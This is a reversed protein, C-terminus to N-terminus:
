PQKEGQTSGILILYLVAEQCGDLRLLDNLMDDYFGGIPVGGLGEAHTALLLNQAIHGAELLVFRYAREGYKFSTRQMVASLLICVSAQSVPIEGSTAKILPETFDQVALQELSHHLTNYSYLGPMVGDVRLVICYLDIPFLGGGSPATRLLWEAGDQALASTVIGDGFYLIKALANLSIPTGSFQRVSRRQQLVTEFAYSTLPFEKPLEISPYGRYHPFPRTIIRRIDPSTNVIGITIHAVKNSPHLKSNEHYLEAPSFLLDAAVENENPDREWALSRDRM